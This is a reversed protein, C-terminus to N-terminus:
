AAPVTHQLPCDRATACAARDCLRCAILADPRDDALGAVVKELLSAFRVREDDDLPDLLGGLATARRELLRAVAADGATTVHLAVTRRDPGPRREVLGDAVLRNVVQVAAPHSVTLVRRLAEISEGSLARDAGDRGPARRRV